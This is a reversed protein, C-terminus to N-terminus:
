RRLAPPTTRVYKGFRQVIGVEDVAVTYFCSAGIYILFLVIVILWLAPFRGRMGKIKNFVEGMQPPAGGGGGGSSRKQQQLKDWDWAM